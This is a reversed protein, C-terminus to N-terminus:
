DNRPMRRGIKGRINGRKRAMHVGQPTVGWARAAESMSAFKGIPIGRIKDPTFHIAYRNAAQRVAERSVNLHRATEAQTM